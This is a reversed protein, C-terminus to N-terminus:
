ALNMEPTLMVLVVLNIFTWDDWAGADSRQATLWAELAARTHDSPNDIAFADFAHQVADHVSLATITSLTNRVNDQWVLWRSWNARSWLRSTTLWYGNPRWGSVNPPQFLTQGMDDTWWQPNADGAVITLARMVA